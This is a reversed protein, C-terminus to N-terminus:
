PQIPIICGINSPYRKNGSGDIYGCKAFYQDGGPVPVSVSYTTTPNNSLLTTHSTIAILPPSTQGVHHLDIFLVKPIDSNITVSVNQNGSPLAILGNQVIMTVQPVLEEFQPVAQQLQAEVTGNTIFFLGLLLFYLRLTKM